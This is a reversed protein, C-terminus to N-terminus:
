VEAQQESRALRKKHDKIAKRIKTAGRSQTSVKKSDGLEKRLQEDLGNWVKRILTQRSPNAEDLLCWFHDRKENSTPHQGNWSFSRAKSVMVAIEEVPPAGEVEVIMAAIRALEADQGSDDAQEEEVTLEEIEGETTEDEAETVQDNTVDSLIANSESAPESQGTQEKETAKTDYDPVLSFGDWDDVWGGQRSVIANPTCFAGGGLNVKVKGGDYVKVRGDFYVDAVGGDYVDANGDGSVEAFGGGRVCAWGGHVEARGGDQVVVKGGGHVEARGGDHVVVKGGDYVDAKGGDYVDAVGGDHVDAWGGGHVEAWGGDYVDALSYDYVVAKGGKLVAYCKGPETTKTEGDKVRIPNRYSGEPENPDYKHKSL